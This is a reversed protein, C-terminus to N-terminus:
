KRGEYIATGAFSSLAADNKFDVLENMMIEKKTGDIHNL